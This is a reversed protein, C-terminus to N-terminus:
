KDGELVNYVEKSRIEREIELQLNHNVKHDNLPNGVNYVYLIDRIYQSRNGAMELMPFMFALDWGMKYFNGDRDLLDKKEIKNWLLSKFTRLHSSCWEHRRFSKQQIVHSPIQKAFKGRINSPYEIYSGYTILCEKSDYIDSITQLATKNALWDDGDLTIIIDQPAPNSHKIGDYINKLAYAKKENIILEFRDDGSIEKKIIDVSNDTSIDDIIICQFNKYTQIKVSRICWKIWKEVNYLPIIIKFHNNM